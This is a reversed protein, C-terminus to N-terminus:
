SVSWVVEVRPTLTKLKPLIDKIAETIEARPHRVPLQDKIMNLHKCKGRYKFGPCDCVWNSQKKTLHYETGDSKKVIFNSENKKIVEYGDFSEDEDLHNFWEM